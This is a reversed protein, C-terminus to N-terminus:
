REQTERVCVCVSKRSDNWCSCSALDILKWSILSLHIISADKFLQLIAEKRWMCKFLEIQLIDAKLLWGNFYSNLIETM